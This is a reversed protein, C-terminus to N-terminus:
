DTAYAKGKVFHDMLLDFAATRDYGALLGMASLIYDRDINVQFNRPILLNNDPVLVAEQAIEGVNKAHILAGGTLVMHKVETLDKGTQRFSVGAPTFIEELRGAHRVLGLRIALIALARDFAEEEPTQPLCSPDSDIVCFLDHCKEESLSSIKTFEKIDAGEVIGRASYRMGIDGEVTRKVRPERLGHVFTNPNTPDGWAISYVDTTAGGLDVAMLDGLGQKGPIGDSLLTLADLVASPTPMLIGDLIDRYNSLGKFQIIRELFIERIVAQVPLVNLKGLSPLVNDAVYVPHSSTELITKCARAAVRNGAYVVPFSGKLGAIMAANAQVVASNGGDTGGVLLLIDPSINEIEQADEDTLEYAYTNIVKAGAGFAAFRAAKATLAPVLGCAVMRLGGAASSCALKAQYALKGTKNELLQLAKEFGISIDTAATTYSQVTALISRDQTDVATLKTYTSGFDILLVPHM